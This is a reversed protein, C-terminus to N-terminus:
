AVKKNLLTIEDQENLWLAGCQSCEVLDRAYGDAHIDIDIQTSENCIPCHM